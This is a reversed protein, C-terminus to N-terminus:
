QIDGFLVKLVTVISDCSVVFANGYTCILVYVSFKIDVKVCIFSSLFFFFMKTSSFLFLLSAREIQKSSM